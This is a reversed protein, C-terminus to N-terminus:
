PTVWTLAVATVLAGLALGVIYAFAVRETEPKM